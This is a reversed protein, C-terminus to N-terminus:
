IIAKKIFFAFQCFFLFDGAALILLGLFVANKLSKIMRCEHFM